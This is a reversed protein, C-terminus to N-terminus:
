RRRTNLTECNFNETKEYLNCITSVTGIYQEILASFNDIKVKDNIFSTHFKENAEGSWKNKLSEEAMELKAIENKFRSNIARLEEAKSKLQSPTIEFSPM